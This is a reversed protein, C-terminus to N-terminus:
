ENREKKQTQLIVGNKESFLFIIKFFQLEKFSKKVGGFFFEWSAFICLLM